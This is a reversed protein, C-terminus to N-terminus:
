RRVVAREARAWGIAGTVLGFGLVAAIAPLVATLGDGASLRTFAEILWRHPTIRSVISIVSGGLAVPFFTGGLLGLVVAILASYGGAQETTKALTAVLLVLGMAAVTGAAIVLVVGLSSGWHAGLLWTTALALAVMSFMGVALSGLAKGALVTAPSIPAAALRTMTGEDREILLGLVGFQVTFFLFFVAIGIAYYSKYDIGRGGADSNTFTIALPQAQAQATVQAVLEPSPPVQGSATAATVVALRVAEVEAAFRRGVSTAVAAGIEAEPSTLITFEGAGGQRVTESFGEPFVFAAALQHEEVATAAAAADALTTLRVIEEAEMEQLAILLSKSVEGKDNDVLGFSFQFGDDTNGLTAGLILALGFPTLLGSIYASRDRLRQRLDKGAILLAARM